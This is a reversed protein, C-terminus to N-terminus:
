APARYAALIADMEAAQANTRITMFECYPRGDLSYIQGSNDTRIAMQASWGSLGITCKIHIPPGGSPPNVPLFFHYGIRALGQPLEDADLRRDAMACAQSVPAADKEIPAFIDCGFVEAEIDAPTRLTLLEDATVPSAIIRRVHAEDEPQEIDLARRALLYACAILRTDTEPPPLIHGTELIHDGLRTASPRRGPGGITGVDLKSGGPGSAYYCRLILPQGGSHASPSISIVVTKVPPRRYYGLCESLLVPEPEVEIETVTLRTGASTVLRLKKDSM